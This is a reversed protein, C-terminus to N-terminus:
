IRDAQDSVVVVVNGRKHGGDVHRHAEAIEELLYRRDIVIQLVDQELLERVFLLAGTKEVSMGCIIRKGGLLPSWVSRVLNSFTLVTEVFSGTDKLVPKAQSFSSKGITDFVIDYRGDGRGFDERTYDVVADAGLSEVLAANRGSCVGTVRAGFHRALQVSYSGISGSAGVILVDQGPQIRARDRLFFLATTAGDVAAASEAFSKNRPKIAISAREPLCIFEAHAGINFGAFGFVREGKKFRTVAAGTEEVEGAFETGLTRFRKRPRTFGILARGWKPLGRRMASEAATVTSAHVRILVEDTKPRPTPVDRLELVEPPGFREFVAARM